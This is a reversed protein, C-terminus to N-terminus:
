GIHGSGHIDQQFQGLPLANTSRFRALLEKKQFRLIDEKQIHVKTSFILKLTLM